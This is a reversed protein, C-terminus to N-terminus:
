RPVGRGTMMMLRRDADHRRWRRSRSGAFAVGGGGSSGGDHKFFVGPLLYRRLAYMKNHTLSPLGIWTCANVAQSALTSGHTKVSPCHWVTKENPTRFGGSDLICYYIFLPIQVTLMLSISPNTHRLTCYMCSM